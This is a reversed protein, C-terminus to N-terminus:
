TRDAPAVHHVEDFQSHSQREGENTAATVLPLWM